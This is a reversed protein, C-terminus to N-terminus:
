YFLDLNKIDDDIQESEKITLMGDGILKRNIFQLTLFIPEALIYDKFLVNRVKPSRLKFFFKCRIVQLVNLKISLKELNVLWARLWVLYESPASGKM